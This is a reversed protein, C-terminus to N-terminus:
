PAFAGATKELIRALETEVEATFDAAGAAVSQAPLLVAGHRASVVILAEELALAWDRASRAAADADEVGRASEDIHDAVMEAFRVSAVRPVADAAQRAFGASFVAALGANILVACALLRWGGLEPRRCLDVEAGNVANPREPGPTELPLPKTTM